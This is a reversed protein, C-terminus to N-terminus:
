PRDITNFLFRTILNLNDAGDNVSFRFFIGHQKINKMTQFGYFCANPQEFAKSKIRIHCWVVVIPEDFIIVTEGNSHSMTTKPMLTIESTAVSVSIDDVIRNCLVLGNLEIIKDCQFTISTNVGSIPADIKARPGKCFSCELYQFMRLIPKCPDSSVSGFSTSAAALDSAKLAIAHFIENSEKASFFGSYKRDIAAFEEFKMCNFKIESITEGLVARLNAKENADIGDRECKAQAWSICANFIDLEKHNLRTAALFDCLMDRECGKFDATQLVSQINVGIREM